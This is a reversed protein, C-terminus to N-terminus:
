SLSPEWNRPVRVKEVMLVKPDAQQVASKKAPPLSIEKEKEKETEKPKEEEKPAEEQAPVELPHKIQYHLILIWLLGLTLKVNGDVIDPDFFTM